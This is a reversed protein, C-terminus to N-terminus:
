KGQVESLPADDADEGEEPNANARGWWPLDIGLFDQLRQQADEAAVDLELFEPRGDFMRRLFAYHGNIWRTRQEATAGYGAPKGPLDSKVLRTRMNTWREMSGALDAAPRLTATFKVGPHHARIAELLAFDMQPWTSRPPQLYSTEAVADFENLLALPDGTEYYGRYLLNGVFVRRIETNETQHPRIRHDAVKLGAHTLATGLTTTGSKPLGLNIVRLRDSM